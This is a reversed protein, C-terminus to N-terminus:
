FSALSLQKDVTVGFITDIESKLLVLEDKLYNQVKYKEAIQLSLYLYKKINGESSTLVINGGCKVCKGILPIRKYRENCKVCRFEQTGFRRLNGKIDKIFHKDIIIRAVDALDVARLEEELNMQSLVKDRMTELTKYSSVNIGNNIDDTHHTFLIKSDSKNLIDKVQRISVDSPKAYSLTANYFELPYKDVIDMNYAESDVSNLDLKVSLVLPSDMYRAGRSDPLLERDFNLLMDTLLMMSAEDGDCNRRMAAHFFPHAFFGQTKSFGIIRGIIGSSTHPALGVVLKGILDQKSSVKMIPESKYYKKLLDDIFRSVRVFVEAGSENPGGFTPMIIDQPKLQLIQDESVLDNDYIDKDYGLLKLSSLSAGIEKPKVHTIPVEIADFRVTGDKNVNLGNEARLIGKELPEIAGSSNFVGKVGKIVPPKSERGIRDFASYLYEKLNIKLKAKSVTERGHHFRETTKAMCTRCIYSREAVSGCTDCTPYIIDKKCKNCYFIGYEAEIFGKEAASIINRSTGGNNGIPFIINPNTQMERMKAKEPRGLRGGIFTGASDKIEVGSLRTLVELNTQNNELTSIAADFNYSSYGITELLPAADDIIIENIVKHEIGLLELIRKLRADYPLSLIKIGGGSIKEQNDIKGKAYVSEILFKLDDKQVQTWFYLFRPHMPLNLRKSFSLYDEFTTLQRSELFTKEGKTEVLRDWWEEVFPSPMLLHGQEAFDGYNFLIDGVYLIESVNSLVAEAEKPTNIKKVSGDRLKVIPGEITSCPTVACAKGPLEVRLQSGTAIFNYFIVNTAPNLAAAAFGSTRGRGYRLRFGGSRLPYSFVPRGAALEELYRYNPLVKSKEDTESTKNKNESSAHAIEKIKILESLFKFDESIGYDAGFIKLMKNVKAAKQAIGECMVLAMGGRVRNTKIRPMNKYASVERDTTPDGDIEIPLNKVLFDLEASSPMYQLRAEFDNYDTVEVKIRGIESEDADYRGLNFSARLADAIVLVSAAATGGAGRVPGGFHCAIYEKGDRRKKFEARVFGELPASVIASTIYALGVRIGMEIAEKYDEFKIFESKSTAIASDLAIRWDNPPYKKEKERIFDALGSNLLKPNLVSLLGEIRAGVDAAVPIKVPKIKNVFDYERKVDDAILNFYTNDDM